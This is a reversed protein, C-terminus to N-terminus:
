IHILSLGMSARMAEALNGTRIVEKKNTVVDTAICAFPIPLSDFNISDEINITLENILKLINRGEIFGGRPKKSMPFSVVFKNHDNKYPFPVKERATKDSILALWDNNRVISDLQQPTYGVSYLGGVIAGISTGVIYDVPIGMDEIVKLAGIHAVGKAGGGSLVVAIKKQSQANLVGISLIILLVVLYNKNAM